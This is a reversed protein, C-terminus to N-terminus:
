NLERAAKARERLKVKTAEPIPIPELWPPEPEKGELFPLLAKVVQGGFLGALESFTSM